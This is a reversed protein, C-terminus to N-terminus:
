KEIHSTSYRKTIKSEHSDSRLIIPYKPLSVVTGLKTILAKNNNILGKCDMTM